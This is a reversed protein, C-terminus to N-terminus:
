CRASRTTSATCISAMFRRRARRARRRCQAARLWDVFDRVEQNRWMWAPFRAFATWESPPIRRAPCLPRHAGRGALRGRHRRVLLGEARHARAFHARADPLVGLHRAHSRRAARRACRRHARLLPELDASDIAAFPECSAAIAKALTGDRTEVAPRPAPRSSDAEEPAWGEEGILPVFRVDAIDETKYDHESVRTVRM